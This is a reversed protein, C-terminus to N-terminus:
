CVILISFVRWKKRKKFNLILPDKWWFRLVCVMLRYMNVVIWGWLTNFGVLLHVIVVYYPSVFKLLFTGLQVTDYSLLYDVGLFDYSEIDGWSLHRRTRLFVPCLVIVLLYPSHFSIVEFAIFLSGCLLGITPGSFIFFIFFVVLSLLM